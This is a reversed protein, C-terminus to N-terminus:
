LFFLILPWVNNKAWTLKKEWKTQKLMSTPSMINLNVLKNFDKAQASGM